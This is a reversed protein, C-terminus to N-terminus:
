IDDDDGDEDEDDDAGGDDDDDDDDDDDLSQSYILFTRFMKFGGLWCDTQGSGMSHRAEAPPAPIADGGVALLEDGIRLGLCDAQGQACCRCKSDTPTYMSLLLSCKYVGGGVCPTFVPSNQKSRVWSYLCQKPPFFARALGTLERFVTRDQGCAEPEIAVVRAGEIEFGM